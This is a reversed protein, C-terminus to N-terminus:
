AANVLATGVFTLLFWLTVSAVANRRLARWAGEAAAAGRVTREARLMFLGNALLCAFLGLKVWFLPSYLFTDLDALFLLVGSAFVLALGILVPGHVSAREAACRARASVDDRDARLITRDSAISLGGASVLGGIHVFAVTTAISTHDQYLASWAHVLGSLFSM